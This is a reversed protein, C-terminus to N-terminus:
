RVQQDNVFVRGDETLRIRSVLEEETAGPQAFMGLMMRTGMAQEEPVIGAQVLKDLLQMGGTLTIGIEGVLLPTGLPSQEVTLDGSAGVEADAFAIRAANINLSRLEDSADDAMARADVDEEVAIDGAIDITVEGPERPLIGAPDVMNWLGDDLAVDLLSVGLAYPQPEESALIPVTLALSTSGAGLTLQPM